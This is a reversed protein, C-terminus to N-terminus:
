GEQRKRYSRRPMAEKGLKRTVAERGEALLLTAIRGLMASPTIRAGEALQRVVAYRAPTIKVGLRRMGRPPLRMKIRHALRLVQLRALGLHNAIEEASRGEDALEAVQDALDERM